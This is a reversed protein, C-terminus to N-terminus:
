LGHSMGNNCVNVMENRQATVSHISMGNNHLLLIPLKNWEQMFINVNNITNLPHLIRLLHVTPPPFLPHLVPPIFQPPPFNDSLQHIHLGARYNWTSIGVLFRNFVNGQRRLFLLNISVINFNWCVYFCM